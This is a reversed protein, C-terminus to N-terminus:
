GPNSGILVSFIQSYSLVMTKRESTWQLFWTFGGLFIGVITNGPHDRSVKKEAYSGPRWRKKKEKPPRRRDMVVLKAHAAEWHHATPHKIPQAGNKKVEVRQNVLM